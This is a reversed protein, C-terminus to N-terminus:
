VRFGLRELGASSTNKCTKKKDGTITYYLDNFTIKVVPIMLILNVLFVVSELRSHFGWVRFRHIHICIHIYEYITYIYIYTCRDIYM